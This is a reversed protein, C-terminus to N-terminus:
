KLGGLVTNPLIADDWDPRNVAGTRVIVLQKSPVIYVRHGGGGDFFVIDDVLYPESHKAGFPTSRNYIRQGGKDTMPPAGLWMQFGYNPNTASPTTMDAIWSEPVIQHGNFQGKNAIMVGLKLWDRPRAQFYSFGKATGNPRDLWLTADHAGLPQWLKESIYDAYKKGTAREVATLLIQSNASNYNFEAAPVREIDHALVHSAIDTGLFTRLGESFPSQSLAYNFRFHKVGSAMQLLQRITLTEKATGRWEAIYNAAADDVSTISGDAIALGVTLGLVSKAMSYTESVADPGAGNWYQEHEIKGNRAVILSLSTMKEAYSAANLIAEPSISKETEGAVAIEPGNSGKVVARPDIWEPLSQPTQGQISIWRSWFTREGAIRDELTPQPTALAAIVRKPKPPASVDLGRLIMNPLKANDWEPQGPPPRLGTRVIVLDQSPIMYVIQGNMGDFLFLDDALYPESAFAGPRPNANNPSDPRHYLRRQTYPQGLWTMLGFHPNNPSPKRMETTWWEPLLQRDGVKGGNLVLLGVRLWTEPPLMLCCGGHPKGGPRNVWINGGAAGIPKIIADSLYDAYRKKTAGEIILPMLDATIDSYDYASGPEFEQPISNAILEDWHPDLYRRSALSYPGGGRFWMLGSSMQLVNRITAKAKPTNRWEPIYDAVSDDLSKIFGDQIAAGIVLGGLMKHLSRSNVLTDRRGGWYSALQLKGKHWVLLSSSRNQGAYARAQELVAEPITHEVAPATNIFEFHAGAVPETPEYVDVDGNGGKEAVAIFRDWYVRNTAYFATAFIALAAVAIILKRKM